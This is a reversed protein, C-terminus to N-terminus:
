NEIYAEIEVIHHYIAKQNPYITKQTHQQTPNGILISLLKQTIGLTSATQRATSKTNCFCTHHTTYFVLIAQYSCCIIHMPIM